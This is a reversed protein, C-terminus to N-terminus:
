PGSFHRCNRQRIAPGRLPPQRWKKLESRKARLHVPGPEVEAGAHPLRKARRGVGRRAPRVDKIGQNLAPHQDAPREASAPDPGPEDPTGPGGPPPARAPPLLFGHLLHRHAGAGRRENWHFVPRIRLDHKNARFCAEIEPLTRYQVVLDRPDAEDCGWAVIGRLGDWRAAEAM